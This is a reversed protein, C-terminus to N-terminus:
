VLPELKCSLAEPLRIAAVDDDIALGGEFGAVGGVDNDGGFVDLITIRDEYEVRLLLENVEGRLSGSMRWGDDIVRAM